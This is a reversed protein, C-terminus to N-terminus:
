PVPGQDAAALAIAAELGEAQVVPDPKRHKDAHGAAAVSEASGEEETESQTTNKAQTRAARPGHGAIRALLVELVAFFIAASQPALVPLVNCSSLMGWDDLSM